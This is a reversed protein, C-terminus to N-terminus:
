SGDAGLDLPVSSSAITECRSRTSLEATSIRSLIWRHLILSEGPHHTSSPLVISLGDRVHSM